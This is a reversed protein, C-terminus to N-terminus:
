RDSYTLGVWDTFARYWPPVTPMLRPPSSQDFTRVFSRHRTDADRFTVRLTKLINPAPVEFAVDKGPALGDATKSAKPCGDIVVSIRLAPRMGINRVVFRVDGRENQVMDGVVLIARETRFRREIRLVTVLGVLGAALGLLTKIIIPYDLM